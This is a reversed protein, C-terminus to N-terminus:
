RQEDRNAELETSLTQKRSANKQRFEGIRFDYEEEERKRRIKALPFRPTSDYRAEFGPRVEPAAGTESLYIQMFLKPTSNTDHQRTICREFPADPRAFVFLM